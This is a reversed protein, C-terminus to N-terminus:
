HKTAIPRAESAKKRIMLPCPRELRGAGLDSGITVTFRDYNDGGNIRGCM